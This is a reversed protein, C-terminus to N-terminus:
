EKRPLRSGWGPWANGAMHEPPDMGFATLLTPAVDLVSAGAPPASRPITPGRAVLFGPARHTGTRGDPSEAAVEGLKPSVLRTLPLDPDWIVVLDPLHQRRPGPFAGDARIVRSVAKRGSVPDVLEHLAQEVEDLVRGYAAGPEVVGLPERGRLNVRICGELDTPLCFARTNGWDIGATDVRRALADRITTPLRRALAKRFDKPLLDRVARVLDRRPKRSGPGTGAPSGSDAPASEALTRASAGVQGEAEGGAASTFGLRALVEPLLHWGSHNPGVGDGSVVVVSTEPGASDIITGVAADLAVYVNKLLLQEGGTDPQWCYHAGPHTEGFVTFFLDWPQQEMLWCIARAKVPIASDLRHAMAAGDLGRLGLDHAEMGLPYPGVKRRLRRLIAPPQSSTKGYQAWCGWDFLQIGRYGPEPHTYPLDFVTCRVGRESLLRWFTPRGYSGPGFRRYGQLGPAPQFTYYVGHEGVTSGTYLSPWGSVHLAEATTELPSTAGGDLLSALVPLAGERAWRRILSGDGVDLGIVLIRPAAVSM